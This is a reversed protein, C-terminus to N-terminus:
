LTVGSSLSGGSTASSIYRNGQCTITVTYAQGDEYEGAGVITCNPANVTIMHSGSWLVIEGTSDRIEKVEGEPITLSKVNSFDLSM